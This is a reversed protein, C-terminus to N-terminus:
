HHAFVAAIDPEVLSIDVVSGVVGRGCYDM